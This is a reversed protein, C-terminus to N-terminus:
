LLTKSLIYKVITKQVSLILLHLVSKFIMKENANNAVAGAAATNSVTITVKFFIYADYMM